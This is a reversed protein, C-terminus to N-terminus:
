TGQSSNTPEGQNLEESGREDVEPKEGEGPLGQELTQPFTEPIVMLISTCGAVQYGGVM